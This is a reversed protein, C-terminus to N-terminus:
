LRSKQVPHLEQGKVMPPDRFKMHLDAQTLHVLEQNLDKSAIRLVLHHQHDRMLPHVNLTTLLVSLHTSLVAASNPSLDRSLHASSNLVLVQLDKSLLKLVDQHCRLNNALLDRIWEPVNSNLLLRALHASSSLEKTSLDRLNLEQPDRWPHVSTLPDTLAQVIMPLVSHDKVEGLASTLQPWAQWLLLPM